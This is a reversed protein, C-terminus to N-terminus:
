GLDVEHTELADGTSRGAGRRAAGEIYPIDEQRLDVLGCAVADAAVQDVSAIVTDLRRTNSV